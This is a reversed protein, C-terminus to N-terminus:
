SPGLTGAQSVLAAVVVVFMKYVVSLQSLQARRVKRDLQSRLNYNIFPVWHSLDDNKM